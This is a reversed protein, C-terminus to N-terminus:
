GSLRIFIMFDVKAALGPLETMPKWSLEEAMLYVVVDCSRSSHKYIFQASHLSVLLLRPCKGQLEKGETHPLGRSQPNHYMGHVLLLRLVHAANCLLQTDLVLQLKHLSQRWGAYMLGALEM